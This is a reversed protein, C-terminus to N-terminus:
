TLINNAMRPLHSGFSLPARAQKAEADALRKETQGRTKNLTELQKRHKAEKAATVQRDAKANELEQMTTEYAHRASAVAETDFVRDTYETAEYQVTETLSFGWVLLALLACPSLLEIMTTRLDRSKLRLNKAMMACFQRIWM